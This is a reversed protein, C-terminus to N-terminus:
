VGVIPSSRPTPSSIGRCSILPPLHPRQDSSHKKKKRKNPREQRKELDELCHVEAMSTFSRSKGSYYISLGRKKQPLNTKLAAMDFIKVNETKNDMHSLSLALSLSLSLSLS